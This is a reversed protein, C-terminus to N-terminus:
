AFRYGIGAGFVWPNISVNTNLDGLPTYVNVSPKIYIKKVDFNVYLNDNLALDVGAQFAPGVTNGYHIATAVPGSNVNYFHTVNIGVGLYPNIKQEPFLHYQATLTPPLVSVKGLNVSGLLTNTAEVSHRTTALILEAAIHSTFFYSFDLEATAQNSITTVHGGISSITSSSAQPMVDIARLRILWPSSQAFVTSACLLGTLILSTKKIIM